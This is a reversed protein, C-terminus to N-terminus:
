KEGTIIYREKQTQTMKNIEKKTANGFKSFNQDQQSVESKRKSEIESKEYSGLKSWNKDALQGITKADKMFSGLGGYIVRCLAPKGCKPCETLAEDKISQYVDKMEHLCADCKYDYLM